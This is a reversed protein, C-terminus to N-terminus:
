PWLKKLGGWPCPGAPGLRDLAQRDREAMLRWDVEKKAQFWVLAKVGWQECDEWAQALWRERSGGALACSTEFVVLPKDPALRILEARLEGFIQAFSQWRSQWGHQAKNRSAGWNYGDMGLVDVYAAGPWYAGARNWAAQHWRPHPLSEANPCFAWRINDAEQARALDVVHRYLRQYLGPSAPGYDQAKAGWHYRALNMEHALRVVVPGGWQKLGQAFAKVYPDYDGALIAAAGIAQERGQADLYMPEWTVVPLAGQASIAELTALPVEGAQGPAPWQLFFVVLRPARGMQAKVAALRQAGLPYGDLAVGWAPPCPKPGALAPAALLLLALVALPARM